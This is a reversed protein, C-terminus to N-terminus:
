LCRAMDRAEVRRRTDGAGPTQSYLFWARGTASARRRGGAGTRPIVEAHAPRAQGDAHLRPQLKRMRDVAEMSHM